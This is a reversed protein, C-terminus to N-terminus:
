YDEFANPWLTEELQKEEPTIGKMILAGFFAGKAAASVKEAKLDDIIERILETALPKSGKKGIAVMKIGRAIAPENTQTLINM